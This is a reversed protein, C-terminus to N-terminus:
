SPKYAAVSRATPCTIVWASTIRSELSTEGLSGVGSESSVARIPSWHLRAMRAPVGM